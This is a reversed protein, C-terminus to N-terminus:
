ICEGTQFAWCSKSVFHAPRPQQAAADLGSPGDDLEVDSLSRLNLLWLQSLLFIELQGGLGIICAHLINYWDYAQLRSGDTLREIPLGLCTKHPYLIHWSGLYTQEELEKKKDVM